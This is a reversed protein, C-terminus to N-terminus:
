SITFVRSFYCTRYIKIIILYTLSRLILHLYEIFFYDRLEKSFVIEGNNAEIDNFIMILMAYFAHCIKLYRLYHVITRIEKHNVAPYEAIKAVMKKIKM